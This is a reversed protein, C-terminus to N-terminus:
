RHVGASTIAAAPHSTTLAARLRAASALAQAQAAARRVEVRAAGVPNDLGRAVKRSRSVDESLGLVEARDSGARDRGQTALEGTARTGRTLDEAVPLLEGLSRHLRRLRTDMAERDSREQDTAPTPMGALVVQGAALAGRAFGLHERVEGADACAQVSRRRLDEFAEQLEFPRALGREGKRVAIEVDGLAVLSRSVDQHVADLGEWALDVRHHAEQLVIALDEASAAYARDTGIPASM